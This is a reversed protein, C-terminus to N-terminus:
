RAKKFMRSFNIGNKMSGNKLALWIFLPKGVIHTEPVFGWFRSDESEHRNDGMMWYYDYKFTYSDAREGNLFYEGNKVVLNNEEYVKIARGYWIMNRPNLPITSGRAPIWVSGYDDITWGRNVSKNNPFLFDEQGTMAPRPIVNIGPDLARAKELESNTMSLTFDSRLQGDLVDIKQLMSVLKQRSINPNTIQFRYSYQANEPFEQKEGNIFIERNVIKLSDGPAGVCRKVYFDTKEPVHSVMKIGQQKIAQKLQPYARSQEASYARGGVFYTSDGVPWNFVVPDLTKLKSIAPLRYYPLKPNELYSRTKLFPIKNHLLPLQLVTRPTRIGYKAKSVFLFDGVKLSDEMSPTPINYAEILFMRIFAAAFVAFILSEAWERGGSKKYPNNEVLRDLKSQDKNKRAENIQNRYKKEEIWSKEYYHEEKGFAIRFFSVPTFIAAVFSQWFSYKKFSRVLDIAMSCFIFINVIPIYLFVAHWTPRGVIKCWETFHLVPVLGKWADVGAKPFLFYLSIILAIYFIVIYILVTM